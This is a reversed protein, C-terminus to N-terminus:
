KLSHLRGTNTRVFAGIQEIATISEPFLWTLHPFVHVMGDYEELQVAVGAKIARETITIADDYLIENSGVIMLIPPFGTFDAFVPSLLPDTRDHDGSYSAAMGKAAELTIVPDLDQREIYSQGSCTMDAAPSIQVIAAPMTEGRKRISLVVALALGAGASDGSIVLREAPVGEHRIQEYVRVGDELSAPYPYEPALRFDPLFVRAAAARAIRAGLEAHSKSSGITCGGGHFHVIVTGAPDEPILWRGPVGGIQAAEVRVDDPPPPAMLDYGDRLRKLAQEPTDTSVPVTWAFAEAALRRVQESDVM